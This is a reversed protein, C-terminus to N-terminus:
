FFNEPWLKQPLYHRILDAQAQYGRAELERVFFPWPPINSIYPVSGTSMGGGTATSMGGGTATSLGGGTATSMGGGTATSM